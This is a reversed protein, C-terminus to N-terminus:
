GQGKVIRCYSLCTQAEHCAERNPCPGEDNPRPATMRRAMERKSPSWSGVTGRAQEIVDRLRNARETM